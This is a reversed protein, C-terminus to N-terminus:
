AGAAAADCAALYWGITRRLGEELSTKARFGLEREARSVDLCRRPQGNPKGADWRITGQFGVIAAIQEAAERISTERGTGLNVPAPKDYSEAARLIGEVADEVYLFERTASGDGWLVVESLGQRRADACKRIIAPVVHSNEPDFHDRPGYLNTAFLFIANMGYQERYAQCQVLIAKKAIGYPGTVEEPYGNWLSDEQFPVPTVRPYSCITGLVVTKEVGRLPAAEILQIGMVANAYFFYGPNRLNAGIGGVAAALHLIVEPRVADFLREIADSRTLDYEARSPAFVQGCGLRRLGDVVHGGLFGSGGTVLIRKERLDIM